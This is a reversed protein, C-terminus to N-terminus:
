LQCRSMAEFRDGSIATVKAGYRVVLEGFKLGGHLGLFQDKAAGSQRDFESLIFVTKTVREFTQRAKRCAKLAGAYRPSSSPQGRAIGLECVQLIKVLM